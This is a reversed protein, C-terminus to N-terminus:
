GSTTRLAGFDSGRTSMGRDTKSPRGKGPLSSQSSSATSARQRSRWPPPERPFSMSAPSALSSQPTTGSLKGPTVKCEKRNKRLGVINGGTGTSLWFNRKLPLEGFPLKPRATTNKAPSTVRRPEALNRKGPLFVHHRFAGDLKAQSGFLEQLVLLGKLNHGLTLHPSAATDLTGKIAKGLQCCDPSAAAGAIALFGSAATGQCYVLCHKMRRKGSGVLQQEKGNNRPQQGTRLGTQKRHRTRAASYPGGQCGDSCLTGPRSWFCFASSQPLTAQSAFGPRTDRCSPALTRARSAAPCDGESWCRGAHLSRSPEQM